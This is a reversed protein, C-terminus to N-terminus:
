AITRGDRFKIKYVKAMHDVSNVHVGLERAAEAKSMGWAALERYDDPSYGKRGHGFMRIPWNLKHKKVLHSISTTNKGLLQAAQSRSYGQNALRQLFDAIEEDHRAKMEKWENMM